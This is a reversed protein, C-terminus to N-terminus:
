YTQLWRRGHILTRMLLFFGIAGPWQQAQIGPGPSKTSRSSPAVRAGMKAAVDATGDTSNNDCVIIEWSFGQGKHENLALKIRELTPKLFTEENFAPIIISILM